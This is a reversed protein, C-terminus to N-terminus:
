KNTELDILRIGNELAAQLSEYASIASTHDWLQQIVIALFESERLLDTHDRPEATPYAVSAQSTWVGPRGKAATNAIQSLSSHTRLYPLIVNRTIDQDYLESGATDDFQSPMSVLVRRLEENEILSLRGSQLLGDIAGRSYKINQWWALDGILGDLIEPEITTPAVSADLIKLISDVVAHRYSFEIDILELNQEFEAKLSVLIRQEEARDQRNDWWADIAFALLISMVIAAAEVAIRNWPIDQVNTVSPGDTGTSVM